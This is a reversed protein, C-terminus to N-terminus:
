YDKILLYKYGNLYTSRKKIADQPPPPPPLEGSVGFEVVV